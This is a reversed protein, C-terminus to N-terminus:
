SGVGYAMRGRGTVQRFDDDPMAALWEDIKQLRTADDPYQPCAPCAHPGPTKHLVCCTRRVYFTVAPGADPYALLPHAPQYAQHGTALLLEEIWGASPINGSARELRRCGFALADLTINYIARESVKGLQRAVVAVPALLQMALAGLQALPQEPETLEVQGVWLANVNSTEDLVVTVVSLNGDLIKTDLARFIAPIASELTIEVARDFSALQVDDILRYDRKAVARQLPELRKKPPFM